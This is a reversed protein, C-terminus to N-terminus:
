RRSRLHSNGSDWVMPTIGAAYDHKKHCSMCLAIYDDVNRRYKHDINAWGVGPGNKGCRSCEIPKGKYYNIWKHIAHYGAKDGKWKNNLPGVNSKRLSEVRKENGLSRNHALCCKQSCYRGCNGLKICSPSAYKRFAKGCEGCIFTRYNEERYNWPM